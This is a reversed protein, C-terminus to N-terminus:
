SSMILSNVPHTGADLLDSDVRGFSIFGVQGSAAYLENLRIVSLDRVKRVVFKKLDGYVVTVNSAGIEPMAQNIVYPRGNITDPAGVSMGAQWLPRGYKDLIKRISALTSDHLMYKGRRRYSPDVSHELDILDTYGISNAGTQSGGTSESSGEAVVPTAGSAAIATLLGTPQANGTGNTL